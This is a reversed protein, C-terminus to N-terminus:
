CTGEYEVGRGARAGFAAAFVAFLEQGTRENKRNGFFVYRQSARPGSFRLLGRNSRLSVRPYLKDRTTWFNEVSVVLPNIGGGSAGGRRARAPPKPRYAPRARRAFINKRRFLESKVGLMGSLDSKKRPPPGRRVM